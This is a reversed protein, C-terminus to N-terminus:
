KQAIHADLCAMDLMNQYRHYTDEYLYRWSQNFSDTEKVEYMGQISKQRLCAKLSILATHPLCSSVIASITDQPYDFGAM